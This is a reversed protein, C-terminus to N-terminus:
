CTQKNVKPVRKSLSHNHKKMNGSPIVSGQRWASRLIYKVDATILMKNLDDRSAKDPM